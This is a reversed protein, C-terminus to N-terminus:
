KFTFHFPLRPLIFAAFMNTKMPFLRGVKEHSKQSTNCDMEDVCLETDPRTLLAKTKRGFFEAANKTTTDDLM